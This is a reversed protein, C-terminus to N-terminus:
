TKLVKRMQEHYPLTRKHPKCSINNKAICLVHCIVYILSLLLIATTYPKLNRNVIRLLIKPKTITDFEDIPIAGLAPLYDAVPGIQLKIEKFFPDAPLTPDSVVQHSHYSASTYYFKHHTTTAYYCDRNLTFTISNDFVYSKSNSTTECSISLTDPETSYVTFNNGEHQTVINRENLFTLSCTRKMENLDGLFFNYICTSSLNRFVFNTKHCSYHEKKIRICDSFQKETFIQGEAEFQDNLAIYPAELEIKALTANTIQIPPTSVHYLNLEDVTAAAVVPIIIQLGHLDSFIADVQQNYLSRHDHLPKLNYRDLYTTLQTFALELGDPTVLELPLQREKLKILAHYITNLVQSTHTAIQLIRIQNEHQMTLNVLESQMTAIIKYNAITADLRTTLNQLAKSNRNVQYKLSNIDATQSTSSFVKLLKLSLKSVAILGEIVPIARNVRQKPGRRVTNSYTVLPAYTTTAPTVVASSPVDLNGISSSPLDNNPSPIYDFNDRGDSQRALVYNILKILGLINQKIPNLYAANTNDHQYDDLCDLANQSTNLIPALPIKFVLYATHTTKYTVGINTWITTPITDGQIQRVFLLVLLPLKYM